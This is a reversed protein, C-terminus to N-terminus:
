DELVDQDVNQELEREGLLKEVLETVEDETYANFIVEFRNKTHSFNIRVNHGYREQLPGDYRLALQPRGRTKKRLPDNLNMQRQINRARNETKRVTLGEELVHHYFRLQKEEDPIMLIAKAHGISIRGEILGRQIEAPLQLVRLVNTIAVRSRGVRQGIEEHSMGFEENLQQYGLAEEIPNLNQRQVNETLALELRHRDGTVGSRMVVPIEDWGLKKAARLRREGALLQYTGDGAEMVVLPQMMGHQDLSQSLEELEQEDFERRPQYPNPVVDGLAVYRVEEGLVRQLTASPIPEELPKKVIRKKVAMPKATVEAKPQYAAPAIADPDFDAEEEEDVQTPAVVVKKPKLKKASSVVVQEVSDVVEEAASVTEQEATHEDSNATAPNIIMGTEPDITLPTVFPRAPMPDSEMEEIEEFDSLKRVQPMDADVAEATEDTEDGESAEVAEAEDLEKHIITSVEDAAVEQEDEDEDEFDESEEVVALPRAVVSEVPVEREENVIEAQIESSVVVEEGDIEEIIGEAEQQNRRPILSALGRGLRNM